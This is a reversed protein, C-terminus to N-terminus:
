VLLLIHIVRGSLAVLAVIQLDLPDMGIGHLSLLCTVVPNLDAHSVTIPRVFDLVANELYVCVCQLKQL